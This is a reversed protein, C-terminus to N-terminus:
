KLVEVKLKELYNSITKQYDKKTKLALEKKDKELKEQVSKIEQNILNTKYELEKKFTLELESIKLTAEESKTKILNTAKEKAKELDKLVKNEVAIIESLKEM